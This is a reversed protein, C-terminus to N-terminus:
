RAEYEQILQIHWEACRKSLVVQTCVLEIGKCLVKPFHRQMELRFPVDSKVGYRREVFCTPSHAVHSLGLTLNWGRKHNTLERISIAPAGRVLGRGRRCKTSEFISIPPAGGRDAWYPPSSAGRWHWRSAPLLLM